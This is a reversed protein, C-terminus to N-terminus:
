LGIQYNFKYKGVVRGKLATCMVTVQGVGPTASAAIPDMESEDADRGTAAAGSQSITIKSTATVAADVVLFSMSDVPASGFDLEVETVTLVPTMQYISGDGNRAFLQGNKQYLM